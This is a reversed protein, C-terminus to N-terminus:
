KDKTGNEAYQESHFEILLLVIFLNEWIFFTQMLLSFRLFYLIIFVTAYVISVINIVRQKKSKAFIVSLIFSVTTALMLSIAFDNHLNITLSTPKESYLNFPFFATGFICLLIVAYVIRKILNMKTKAIYYVILIIMIVAAFFYMVSTFVSLGVYASFSIGLDFRHVDGIWAILVATAATLLFIIWAILPLKNKHKEM